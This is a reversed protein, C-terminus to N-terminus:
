QFQQSESWDSSCSEIGNPFLPMTSKSVRKSAGAKATGGDDTNTGSDSKKEIIDVAHPFDEVNCVYGHRNFQLWTEISKFYAQARLCKLRLREPIPAELWQSNLESPIGHLATIDRQSITYGYQTGPFVLAKLNNYLQLSYSKPPKQCHELFSTTELITSRLHQIMYCTNRNNKLKYLMTRNPQWSKQGKDEPHYSVITSGVGVKHPYRHSHNSDHKIREYETAMKTNADRYSSYEIEDHQTLDQLIKTTRRAMGWWRSPYYPSDKDQYHKSKGNSAYSSVYAAVSTHCEEADTQLVSKDTSHTGGDKRAWMDIGAKKGISDLTHGWFSKWEQLIYLRESKDPVHLCFHIHLAGRQQLEWAYFWHSDTVHYKVWNSIEHVTYSSYRAIADMAEHTSGPLTGTLFLYNGPIPDVTDMAGGARLITRRANLGFVTRRGLRGYGTKELDRRIDLLLPPEEPPLEPPVASKSQEDPEDGRLLIDGQV